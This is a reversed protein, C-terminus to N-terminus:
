VGAPDAIEHHEQAFPQFGAKQYTALAKPHDLTCTHVWVRKPSKDWATHIATDLLWPGLKLGIFEPMLGFYKLEVEGKQEADLEFFGAPVGDVYVVSIEVDPHRVLALLQEDDLRLREYWHWPKGVSGYLFRYFDATPEKARMLSIAKGALGPLPLRAREPRAHMELHTITVPIMKRLAASM